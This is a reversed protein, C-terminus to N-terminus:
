WEKFNLKKVEMPNKCKKEYFMVSMHSKFDNKINM